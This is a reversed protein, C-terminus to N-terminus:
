GYIGVVVYEAIDRRWGNVVKGDMDVWAHASSTRSPGLGPRIGFVIRASRGRRRLMRQTALAQQLCVARFPVLRAVRAVARGIVAETTDTAVPSAGGPGAHGTQLGYLRFYWREPMLTACRALTLECLVESGLAMRQVISLKAPTIGAM